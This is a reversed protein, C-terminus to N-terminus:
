FSNGEEEEKQEKEEEEENRIQSIIEIHTGPKGLVGAGGAEPDWINPNCIYM